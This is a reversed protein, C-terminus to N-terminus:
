ASCDPASVYTSWKLCLWLSFLHTWFSVVLNFSLAAVKWMKRITLLDLGVIFQDVLM